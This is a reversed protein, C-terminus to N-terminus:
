SEEKIEGNENFYRALIAAEEAMEEQSRKVRNADMDLREYIEDNRAFDGKKRPIIHIHVHDVSQGASAGDQIAM